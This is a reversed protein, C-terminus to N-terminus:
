SEIAEINMEGFSYLTKSQESPYGRPNCYVRCTGIMYDYPDHTHGHIWTRIQPYREIFPDLNSTFAGNLIADPGEKFRPHVSMYSCCHHSMVWVDDKGELGKELARLTEKHAEVSEEPTLAHNPASRIISFDPMSKQAIKLTKLDSGNMNTWFTGGFLHVGGITTWANDLVEVNGPLHERLFPVVDKMENGYFEHNGVVFIVRDYKHFQGVFGQVTEEKFCKVGVNDFVDGALLLIDGGPLTPIHHATYHRLHLDSGVHIRIPKM